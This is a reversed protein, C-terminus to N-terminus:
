EIYILPITAQVLYDGNEGSTSIYLNKRDNSNSVQAQTPTGDKYVIIQTLPVPFFTYSEGYDIITNETKTAIFNMYIAEGPAIKIYGSKINSFLETVDRMNNFTGPCFSNDTHFMTYKDPINKVVNYSGKSPKFINGNIWRVRDIYVRYVSYNVDMFCNQATEPIFDSNYLVSCESAFLVPAVDFKICTEYTDCISQLLFLDQTYVHAHIFKSGRYYNINGIWFHAKSITTAANLEFAIKNNIGSVNEITSDSTNIIFATSEGNGNIVVNSIKCEYGSDITIGSEAINMYVNQIANQNGRIIIPLTSNINCIIKKNSKLIISGTGSFSCMNGNLNSSLTLESNIVYEKNPSCYIDLGMSAIKKFAATDDHVKNGIAGYTEPRHFLELLSDSVEEIKNALSNVYANFEGSKVWYLNNAPPETTSAPVPIRSIYSTNRYTVITLPEYYTNPTWEMGGNGDDFLKPVYRAGVYQRNYDVAM